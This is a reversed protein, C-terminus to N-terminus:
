VLRKWHLMENEIKNQRVSKKNAQIFNLDYLELVRSGIEEVKM